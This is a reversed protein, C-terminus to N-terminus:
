IYFNVRRIQYSYGSFIRKSAKGTGRPAPLPLGMDVMRCDSQRRWPFPQLAYVRHVAHCQAAAMEKLQRRLDQSAKARRQALLEASPVRALASRHVPLSSPSQRCDTDRHRRCYTNPDSRVGRDACHRSAATSKVIFMIYCCPM